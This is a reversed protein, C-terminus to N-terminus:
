PFVVLPRFGIIPSGAQGHSLASAGGSISDGSRLRLEPRYMEECWETTNTDEWGPRQGLVNAEIVRPLRVSAQEPVNMAAQIAEWFRSDNLEESTIYNRRGAWTDKNLVGDSSLEQIVGQILEDHEYTQGGLASNPKRRVDVLLWSGPLDCPDLEKGTHIDKLHPNKKNEPLDRIAEFEDFFEVGNLKHPTHRTGPKHKWGPLDLSEEMRVKPLYRLEFLNKKWEAIQEPTLYDPAPPVEIAHEKVFSEGFFDRLRQAEEIRIAELNPMESRVENTAESSEARESAPHEPTGNGSFLREKMPINILSTPILNHELNILGPQKQCHRARALGKFCRRSCQIRNPKHSNHL